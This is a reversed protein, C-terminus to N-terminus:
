KGKKDAAVEDVLMKDEEIRNFLALSPPAVYMSTMDEYFNFSSTVATQAARM